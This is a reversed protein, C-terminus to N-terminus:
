VNIETSMRLYILTGAVITKMARELTSFFLFAEQTLSLVSILAGSVTGLLLTGARDVDSKSKMHADTSVLSGDVVMDRDDSSYSEDPQTSLTGRKIVNVVDALHFYGVSELKGREEDTSAEPQRRLAFLNGDSDCGLFVDDTTGLFEISRTFSVHMDRAVEEVSSKEGAEQAARYRFVTISRILDGTIIFDGRCRVYLCM